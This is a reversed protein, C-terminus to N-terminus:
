WETSVGEFRTIFDAGFAKAPTWAGPEVAGGLVRLACEVATEATLTYAEPTEMMAASRDGAANGVEGWLYVRAARRREEGPGTVTRRIWWQLARKVPTVGLLPLLARARRSRRILSRPMGQYVRINPIATTHFATSVDGWPITMAWRRGCSFDIQRVDFAPPRAVIRGDLREAGLHPLAEIMTQLTGRSWEGRDATFALTLHTSGPLAAALRAALCDTPVVDFGVGPLLVVGARRAAEGRRLLSELVEIEGTIDLYHTGTALCAEIMPRSTRVFPGACHLVAGVGDLAARLDAADALDIRRRPLGLEDALEQLPQARRGALLPEFGRRAAERAVLEGTYGYAGYIMWPQGGTALERGGGARVGM